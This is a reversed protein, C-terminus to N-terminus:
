TEEGNCDTTSPISRFEHIAVYYIPVMGIMSLALGFEAQWNPVFEAAWGPLYQSWDVISAGGDIMYGYLWLGMGVVSVVWGATKILTHRQPNKSLREMKVSMEWIVDLNTSITVCYWRWPIQIGKSAM